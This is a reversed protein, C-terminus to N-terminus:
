FECFLKKIQVEFFFSNLSKLSQKLLFSGVLQDIINKLLCPCENPSDSRRRFFVAEVRARREGDNQNALRNAM